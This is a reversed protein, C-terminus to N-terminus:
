KRQTTHILIYSDHKYKTYYLYTILDVNKSTDKEENLFKIRQCTKPSFHRLINM